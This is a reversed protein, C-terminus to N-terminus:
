RVRAGESKAQEDPELQSRHYAEMEAAYVDEITVDPYAEQAAERSFLEAAAVFAKAKSMEEIEARRKIYDLAEALPVYETKGTVLDTRAVSLGDSFDVVSFKDYRDDSSAFERLIYEKGKLREYSKKGLLSLFAGASLLAAAAVMKMRKKMENRKKRIKRRKRREDIREDVATKENAYGEPNNIISAREAEEKERKKAAEIFENAVKELIEDNSM